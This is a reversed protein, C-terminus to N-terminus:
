SSSGRTGCVSIVVSMWQTVRQVTEVRGELTCQRSSRLEDLRLLAGVERERM